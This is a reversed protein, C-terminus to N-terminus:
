GSIISQALLFLEKCNQEHKHLSSLQHIGDERSDDPLVRISRALLGGAFCQLLVRCHLERFYEIKKFNFDPKSYCFRVSPARNLGGTIKNDPCQVCSAMPPKRYTDPPCDECEGATENWETGAACEVSNNPWRSQSSRDRGCSVYQEDVNQKPFSPDCTYSASATSEDYPFAGSLNQQIPTILAQRTNSSCLISM